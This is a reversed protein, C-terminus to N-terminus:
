WLRVPINRCVCSNGRGYAGSEECKFQICFYKNFFLRIEHDTSQPIVLVNQNAASNVTDPFTLPADPASDSFGDALRVPPDSRLGLVPSETVPIPLPPEFLPALLRPPGLWHEVLSAGDSSLFSFSCCNRM